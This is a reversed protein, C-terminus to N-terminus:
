NPYAMGGSFRQTIQRTLESDARLTHPLYYSSTYLLM